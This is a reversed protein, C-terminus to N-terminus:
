SPNGVHLGGIKDMEGMKKPDLEGISEGVNLIPTVEGDSISELMFKNNGKRYSENYNLFDSSSDLDAGLDYGTLEGILPPKISFM